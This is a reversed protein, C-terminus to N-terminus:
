SRKANKGRNQHYILAQLVKQLEEKNCWQLKQKGHMKKAIGEAYEWSLECEKLIAGIKGMIPQKANTAYPQKPKKPKCPKFGADVFANFVQYLQPVTMKTCSDQKGHLKLFARYTDDDFGLQSQAIHIKQTLTYRNEFRAM